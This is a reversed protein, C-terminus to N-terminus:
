PQNTPWIAAQLKGRKFDKKIQELNDYYRYFQFTKTSELSRVILRSLQSHDQDLVGMPLDKVSQQQYIAALSFFIVAPMILILGWMIKQSAIQRWERNIIRILPHKRM